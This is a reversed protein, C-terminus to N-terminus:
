MRRRRWGSRSSLFTSMKCTQLPATIELKTPGCSGWLVPDLCIRAWKMTLNWSSHPWLIRQRSSTPSKWRTKGDNRLGKFIRSWSKTKRKKSRPPIKSSSLRPRSSRYDWGCNPMVCGLNSLKVACSKSRGLTNTPVIAVSALKPWVRRMSANGSSFSIKTCTMKRLKLLYM